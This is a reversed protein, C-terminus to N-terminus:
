KPLGCLSNLTEPSLAVATQKKTEPPLFPFAEPWQEKLQESTNVRALNSRMTARWALVEDFLAKYEADSKAIRAQLAPNAPLLVTTYPIYYTKGSFQYDERLWRGFFHTEWLRSRGHGSVCRCDHGDVHREHREGGVAFSIERAHYSEKNVIYVGAKAVVFKNGHTKNKREVAHVFSRIEADSTKEAELCLQRVVAVIDRREKLCAIARLGLPAQKLLNTILTEKIDKTLRM